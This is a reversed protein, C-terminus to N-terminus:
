RAPLAALRRSILLLEADRTAFCRPAHQRRPMAIDFIDTRLTTFTADHCGHSPLCDAHRSFLPPFAARISFAYAALM